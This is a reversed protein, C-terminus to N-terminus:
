SWGPDPWRWCHRRRGAVSSRAARRPTQRPSKHGSAAPSLPDRWRRQPPYLPARLLGRHPRGGASRNPAAPLIRHGGRQSHGGHQGGPGTRAPAARRRAACTSGTLVAIPGWSRGGCSAGTREPPSAVACAAALAPSSGPWITPLTTRTWSWSRPNRAPQLRACIGHSPFPFELNVIDFRKARLVRDLTRQLAPVTVRLREFSRISALSRLQQLRKALGQRGNPNPVLVVERCYAQMARRCEETDFEDDVLMVATLDHCQALQTMLGHVRAQAGSRPPSAPIQSIYLIRLREPSM